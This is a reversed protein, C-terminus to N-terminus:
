RCPVPVTGYMAIPLPQLETGGDETTVVQMPAPPNPAPACKPGGCAAVGAGLAVIAARAM